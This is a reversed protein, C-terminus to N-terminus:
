NGGALLPRYHAYEDNLIKVFAKSSLTAGSIGDIENDLNARGPTTLVLGRGFRKNRFTDLYVDEAIRSGLGPTEEQQMITIGRITELSEDMALVGKIPGWLGSGEFPLAITGDAGIYVTADGATRESIRAAFVEDVSEQEFPIDLASLVSGKLKISANREIMPKTYADVVVLSTTLISGLVLIFLLMTLNDKM